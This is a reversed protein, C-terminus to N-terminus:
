VAIQNEDETKEINSDTDQDSEKEQTHELLHIKIKAKKSIILSIGTCLYDTGIASFGTLMVFYPLIYQSKAEFLLHYLFGGLATLIFLVSFIDKKKFCLIIGTFTGLYIILQFINMFLETDNQKLYALSLAPEKPYEYKERIQSLWICAYTPENWQSTIKEFYFDNADSPHNIFYNLRKIFGKRSAEATKEAIFDNNAHNYEIYDPDFWGAANCCCYCEDPYNSGMELYAIFPVSDDLKISSRAEYSRVILNTVNLACVATVAIYAAAAIKKESIIKVAACIMMAILAILYNLKLMCALTIFIGSLVAYILKKIKTKNGEPKEFLKIEFYFAYVTCALGPIVGYTFVSFLLPQICFFLSLVATTFIRKGPYLKKIILLIGTYAAAVLFINIIQLFLFSDPNKGFIRILIECFFVFGLQYSCNSFYRDSMFEYNGNAAMVAADTVKMSDSAPICQASIVYISGFVISFLVLAAVQIKAPIKELYPIVLTIILLVCIVYIINIILNDHHYSIRELFETSYQIRTTNFLSETLNFGMIFAMIGCIMFVSYQEAKDLIKQIKAM